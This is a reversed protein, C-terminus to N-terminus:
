GAIPCLRVHGNSLRGVHRHVRDCRTQHRNRATERWCWGGGVVLILGVLGLWEEGPLYKAAVIPVAIMIGVGVLVTSLWANRLCWHPISIPDAMWRDIFCATLLALAPYAPLVYHPLKTKCITWFVFWTGFWCSALLLGAVPNLTGPEPGSSPHPILSKPNPIQSKSGVAWQGSDVAEGSGKGGRIGRITNVLTPGLFVAWPFFGVLMAPIQYFYYLISVFIATARDFSSVDGHSLIPQKFPRLNFDIFFKRLWEGHTEIGVLVYWPGAVAAIVLLATFPRM